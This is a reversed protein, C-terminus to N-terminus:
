VGSAPLTANAKGAALPEGQVVAYTECVSTVYDRAVLRSKIWFLIAMIFFIIAFIYQGAWLAYPMLLIAATEMGNLLDKAVYWYDSYGYKDKVQLYYAKKWFDERSEGPQMVGAIRDGTMCLLIFRTLRWSKENMRPKIIRIAFFYRAADVSQVVQGVVYIGALSILLLVNNEALQGAMAKLAELRNWFHMTIAFVLFSVGTIFYVMVDRLTIKFEM